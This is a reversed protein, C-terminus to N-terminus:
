IESEPPTNAEVIVTVEAELGHPFELAVKHEGLERIPEALRVTGPPLSTGLASAIEKAIDGATVAGHPKGQPGSPLHVSITKRDIRQVLEQMAALDRESARAARAESAAAEQVRAATAAAAQGRPFLVNRAYGDAVVVIHGARGVNKVDELLIVRM